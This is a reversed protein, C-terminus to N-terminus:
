HFHSHLQRLSFIYKLNFLLLTLASLPSRYPLIHSSNSSNSPFALPWLVRVFSIYWFYEWIFWYLWGHRDVFSEHLKLYWVIFYWILLFILIPPHSKTFGLWRCEAVFCNKFHGEGALLRKFIILFLTPLSDYRTFPFLESIANLLFSIWAFIEFRIM